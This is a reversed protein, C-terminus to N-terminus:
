TAGRTSGRTPRRTWSSAGSSTSSEWPKPAAGELLSIMSWRGPGDCYGVQVCRGSLTSHPGLVGVLARVPFDGGGEETRFRRSGKSALLSRQPAPAPRHRDIHARVRRHGPPEMGRKELYSRGGAASGLRHLQHLRRHLLSPRGELRLDDA